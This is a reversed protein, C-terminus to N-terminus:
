PRCPRWREGRGNAAVSALHTEGDCGLRFVLRDGKPTWEFWPAFTAESTDSLAVAMLCEDTDALLDTAGGGQADVVFLGVNETSYLDDEGWPEGPEHRRGAYAIRRGDPSWRPRSKPGAPVGALDRATGKAADVVVLKATEHKVLARRHPNTAVVLSRGDPSWGFTLDGLTDKTWTARHAGTAADIVLLVFRDGAFYGDGDLRYWLDDTAFPPDSAKEDKRAKAAAKTREAGTARFCCALRTGDPSWELDRITGEPLETLVSAEGGDAPIIWVQPGGTEEPAPTRVFAIRDGAPSWCPQTDRPGATFRVPPPGDPATSAMWLARVTRAPREVHTRVFVMRAGDPSCRPVAPVVLRYLDAPEVPRRKARGRSSRPAM